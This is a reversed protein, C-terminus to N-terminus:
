SGEILTVLKLFERINYAVDEAKAYDSLCKGGFNEPEQGMPYFLHQCADESIGFFWALGSKIKINGEMVGVERSTYAEKANCHKGNVVLMLDGNDDFYAEDTLSPLQGAACQMTGCNQILKGDKNVTSLGPADDGFGRRNFFSFSFEAIFDGEELRTAIKELLEKKNM